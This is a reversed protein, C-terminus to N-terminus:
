GKKKRTKYDEGVAKFIVRGTFAHRNGPVFQVHREQVPKVVFGERIHGPYLVSPGNRLEELEPKWPGRYLEPVTELGMKKCISLTEDWNNYRGAAVSYTDFVRFAVGKDIGYKLDQVQGYVEGYLIVTSRTNLFITGDKPLLAFKEELRLDKAVKWWLNREVGDSGQYPAKICTRSGVWLRGDRYTFRGNAGHIKETLVVEEGEKIVERYKAFGDIDTYVPMYGRDRENEGTIALKDGADEYKTIGLREAVHDGVQIAELDAPSFVERAPILFGNSFIGRLRRAEVRHGPPLGSSKLVLSEPNTPLVSDPPVFVALDGQSLLGRKMIVPQGYVTTISLNEGNPHNGVKALQVLHVLWDSM